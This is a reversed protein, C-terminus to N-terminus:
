RSTDSEGAGRIDSPNALVLRVLEARRGISTRQFVKCLHYEITRPASFCNPPSRATPARDAWTAAGLWHFIDM